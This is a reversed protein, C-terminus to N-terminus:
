PWAKGALVQVEASCGTQASSTCTEAARSSGVILSQKREEATLKGVTPFLPRKTFEWM